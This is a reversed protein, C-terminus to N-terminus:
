DSNSVFAGRHYSIFKPLFLAQVLISVWHCIVEELVLFNREDNVILVYVIIIVIDRMDVIDCGKQPMWYSMLIREDRLNIDLSLSHELRM